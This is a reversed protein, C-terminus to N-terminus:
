DSTGSLGGAPLPQLDGLMDRLSCQVSPQLKDLLVPLEADRWVSVIPPPSPVALLASLSAIRSALALPQFAPFSLGGVRAPLCAVSIRAADLDQFQLFQKLFHLALDSLAEVLEQSHEHPLARLLHLVRAPYLAKFINWACQAGLDSAVHKALALIRNIEIREVEIKDACWQAVFAPSGLPFDEPQMSDCLTHGCVIMGHEAQEFQSLGPFIDQDLCTTSWLLTKSRNPTLGANSLHSLIAEFDEELEVSPASIVVDDVYARLKTNTGSPLPATSLTHAMYSSFLLASLPDGQPVGESVRLPSGDLHFGPVILDAALTRHLFPLWTTVAQPCRECMVRFLLHRPLRGFANHVDIRLYSVPEPSLQHSLLSAVFMAAGNPTGIGFQVNEMWGSVDKRVSCAVAGHLVKLPLMGILLPRVGGDKKCLTVLRQVSLVSMLPHTAQLLSVQQLWNCLLPRVLCSQSMLQWAEHAWGGSDLARGPRLKGTVQLIDDEAPVWFSTDAFAPLGANSSGTPCLKRATDALTEETRPALGASHTINWAKVSAGRKMRKLVEEAMSPPLDSASDLDDDTVYSNTERSPAQCSMSLAYLTQWQGHRAHQLRELCARQRAKPACPQGVEACALSPFVLKPLVPLLAATSPVESEFTPATLLDRCLAIFMSCCTRPVHRITPINARQLNEIQVWSLPQSDPIASAPLMGTPHAVPTITKAVSKEMLDTYLRSLRALTAIHARATEQSEPDLKEGHTRLFGELAEHPHCCETGSLPPQSRIQWRWTAKSYIMACSLLCDKNNARKLSLRLMRRLEAAPCSSSQDHVSSAQSDLVTPAVSVPTPPASMPRPSKVKVRRRVRMPTVPEDPGPCKAEGVSCGRLPHLLRVSSPASVLTVSPVTVRRQCHGSQGPHLHSTCLHVESFPVLRLICLGSVCLLSLEAQVHTCSSCCPNERLACPRPIWRSLCCRTGTALCAKQCVLRSQEFRDPVLGYAAVLLIERRTVMSKLQLDLTRKTWRKSARQKDHM